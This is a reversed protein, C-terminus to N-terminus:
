NNRLLELFELDYPHKEDAPFFAKKAVEWEASNLVPFYTDADPFTHNVRTLYIKHTQPLLLRYIEGGGTIMLEKEGQEEAYRIGEEVSIVNKCGKYHLDANRSVVINTRGPLPRFKEPISEYSKRGMLVHHGWTIRKFHQMDRPLVWLLDGARGIENNMGAAVVMSLIM